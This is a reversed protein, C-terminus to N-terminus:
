SLVKLELQTQVQRLDKPSLKERVRRFFTKGCFRSHEDFRGAISELGQEFGPEDVHIMILNDIQSNLEKEQKNLTSLVQHMGSEDKLNNVLLHEKKFHDKIAQLINKSEEFIRDRTWKSYNETTEELRKAIASHDETLYHFVNM